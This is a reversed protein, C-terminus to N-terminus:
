TFSMPKQLPLGFDQAPISCYPLAKSLCWPRVQFHSLFGSGM